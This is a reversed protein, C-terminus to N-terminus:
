TSCIVKQDCFCEEAQGVSVLHNPHMWARLMSMENVVNKDPSLVILTYTHGGRCHATCFAPNVEPQSDGFEVDSDLGWASM